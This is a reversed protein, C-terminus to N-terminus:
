DNLERYIWEAHALMRQDDGIPGIVQLGMPLGKEGRFLPLNITPTHFATWIRIFTSDGTNSLGAPAEDPASPTVLVYYESFIKELHVRCQHIVYQADRYADFTCLAGDRLRALMSTSLRHAHCLREHSLARWAEYDNMTKHALFSAEFPPPLAFEGIRAGAHALRTASDHMARAMNPHLTTPWAMNCVGIRPPSVDKSGFHPMACGSLISCMLAVDAVSRGFLGVTDQSEALPKVGARNILNFTPKYGVVGCYAAPRITSGGTQTGLALPAMFDAVAAASGSSSGGPTHALNHPNRTPAWHYAALEVTVTKGMIVAGAERLLAVCAADAKPQHGAYIPSGYGTPMDCTDIIDKVAVPVGHLASRPHENDRGHAQALVQEPDLHAWAQVDRERAETRALCAKALAVATRKGRMACQLDAASYENLEMILIQQVISGVFGPAYISRLLPQLTLEARRHSSWAIM